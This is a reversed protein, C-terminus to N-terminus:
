QLQPANREQQTMRHEDGRGRGPSRSGPTHTHTNPKERGQLFVAAKRRRSSSSSNQSAKQQRKAEGKSERSLKKGEPLHSM